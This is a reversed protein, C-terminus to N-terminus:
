RAAAPRGTTTPVRRRTAPAPAASVPRLAAFLDALGQPLFMLGLMFVPAILLGWYWNDPRGLGAFLVAYGAFLLAGFAGTEARCAAWGLMVLPVLLPSTAEPLIRLTTAGHMALVFFPWGGFNAWGPSAVDAPTVVAAVNAAHTTLALAFVAVVAVWAAAERWRRHWIAFAGMLLIFPLALERILVAATAVLVSPLWSNASAATTDDAGKARHLAWSLALLTAAWVEHSAVLDASALFTTLGGAVLLAGIVPQLTTRDTLHQLRRWWMVAALGVLSFLVVRMASLGLPATVVALTPMRVTIFPRLPYTARRHEAAAAQYYGEGAMMQETIRRYLVLDTLEEAVVASQANSGASESRNTSPQNTSPLQQAPGLAAGPLFRNHQRFAFGGAMLIATLGLIVVAQWRPLGAFRSRAANSAAGRAATNGTTGLDTSTMTLRQRLPDVNRSLM